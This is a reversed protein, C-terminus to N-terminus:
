QCNYFTAENKYGNEIEFIHIALKLWRPLEYQKSNVVSNISKASNGTILAIEKDSWNYHKKMRDYREKQTM